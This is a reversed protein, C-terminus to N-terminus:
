YLDLLEDDDPEDYNLIQNEFDGYNLDILIVNFKVFRKKIDEILDGPELDGEEFREGEKIKYKVDSNYYIMPKKLTEHIEININEAPPLEYHVMVSGKRRGYSLNPGKLDYEYNITGKRLFKYVELAKKILKGDDVSENIQNEMPIAKVGLGSFISIHIRKKTFKEKLVEFVKHRIDKNTFNSPYYIKIIGRINIIVDGNHSWDLQIEKVDPLVIKFTYDENSVRLKVLTIRDAKYFSIARKVKQEKSMDNPGENLLDLLNM